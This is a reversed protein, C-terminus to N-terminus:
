MMPSIKVIGVITEKQNQVFQDTPEVLVVNTNQPDVKWKLGNSVTVNYSAKPFHLDPIFIETPEKITTDVTYSLQFRREEPIYVTYIPKGAIARAYM